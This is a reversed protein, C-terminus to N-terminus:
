QTTFPYDQNPPFSIDNEELIAELQKIRKIKNAINNVLEVVTEETVETTEM